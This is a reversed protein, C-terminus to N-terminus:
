SSSFSDDENNEEKIEEDIQNLSNSSYKDNYTNKLTKSIKFFKPYEINVGSSKLNTLNEKKNNNIQSKTKQSKNNIENENKVTDNKENKDKCVLININKENFNLNM